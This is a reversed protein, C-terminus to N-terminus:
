RPQVIPRKPHDFRLAEKFWSPIFGRSKAWLNNVFSGDLIYTVGVDDKSRIHRGSMQVLSRIAEVTYWNQGGRSHLRANVQKNGLSAYPVKTIVVVQADEGPLDVGRDMSPALLIGGPTQRFKALTRERESAKTYTLIRTSHIERRLYNALFEQLAYSVTHVLMRETAHIEALNALATAMKPWDVDKTKNSMSAVPVVRVERNAVPFTHPVSVVGFEKDEPWGLSEALTEPSVITASMLLWKKGHPWLFSGGFGDVRIPRFTAKGSQYDDFVWNGDALGGAVVNLRSILQELNRRKRLITVDDTHDPLKALEVSMKPIVVANLWTQWTEPKTVHEPLGLDLDKMLRQSITVEVFGMLEKELVDCEDVIVLQRDVFSGAYNTAHLFYSTNLVALPAALASSKAMSYPCHQLSPCWYCDPDDPPSATCDACTIGDHGSVTEYNSRGKIERAYRFDSTFQSQLQISSCIYATQQHPGVTLRRALEGILTKGSGTPADVMVLDKTKFEEIIQEVADWQHPRISSFQAPIPPAGFMANAPSPVSDLDVPEPQAPAITVPVAIRPDEVVPADPTRARFIMAATIHSCINRGHSKACNCRWWQGDHEVKYFSHADGFSPIGDVLWRSYGVRTVMDAHALRSVGRSVISDDLAALLSETGDDLQYPDFALDTM